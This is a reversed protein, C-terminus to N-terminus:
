HGLKLSISVGAAGRSEPDHYIQPGPLQPEYPRKYLGVVTETHGQSFGWGAEDHGKFWGPHDPPGNPDHMMALTREHSPAPSASAPRAKAPAAHTNHSPAKHGKRYSVHAMAVVSRHHPQPHKPPPKAWAGGAGAIGVLVVLWGLRKM